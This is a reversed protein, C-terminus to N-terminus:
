TLTSVSRTQLWLHSNVLHRVLGKLWGDLQRELPYLPLKIYCTFSLREKLSYICGEFYKRILYFWLKLRQYSREEGPFQANCSDDAVLASEIAVSEFRKYPVIIDPLEHHITECKKCQLRRIVLVQKTGDQKILGRKRSGYVKLGNDCNPCPIDEKSKVKFFGSDSKFELSYNSIIVM